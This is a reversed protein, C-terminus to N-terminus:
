KQEFYAILRHPATLRQVLAERAEIHERLTEPHSDGGHAKVFLGISEAMLERLAADSDVAAACFLAQVTM